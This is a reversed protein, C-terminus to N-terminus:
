SPRATWALRARRTDANPGLPGEAPTTGPGFGKRPLRRFRRESTRRQQTGGANMSETERAIWAFPSRHMSHSSFVSMRSELSSPRHPRSGWGRRPGRHGNDRREGISLMCLMPLEGFCRANDLVVTRKAVAIRGAVEPAIQITNATVVADTTRPRVDLRRVVFVALVVTAAVLTVVLLRGLMVRGAAM